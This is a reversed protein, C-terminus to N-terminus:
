QVRVVKQCSPCTIAKGWDSGTYDRFDYPYIDRFEYQLVVGCRCTTKRVSMARRGIVEVTM